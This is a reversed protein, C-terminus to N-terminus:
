PSAMRRGTGEFECEHALFAQHITSASTRGRWVRDLQASSSHKTLSSSASLRDLLPWCSHFLTLPASPTPCSSTPRPSACVLEIMRVVVATTSQSCSQVGAQTVPVARGAEGLCCVMGIPYPTCSAKRLWHSAGGCWQSRGLGGVGRISSNSGYLCPVVLLVPVESAADNQM